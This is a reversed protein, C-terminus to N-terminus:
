FVLSRQIKNKSARKYLITTAQLKTLIPIESPTTHLSLKVQSARQNERKEHGKGWYVLLSAWRSNSIFLRRPSIIFQM